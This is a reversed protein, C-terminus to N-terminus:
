TGLREFCISVSLLSPPFFFLFFFFPLPYTARYAFFVFGYEQCKRTSSAQYRSIQNYLLLHAGPDASGTNRDWLHGRDLAHFFLSFLESGWNTWTYFPSSFMIWSVTIPFYIFCHHWDCQVSGPLRLFLSLLPQSNSDSHEQIVELTEAAGWHQEQFM